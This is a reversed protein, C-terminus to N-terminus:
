RTPPKRREPFRRGVPSLACDIQNMDPSCALLWNNSVGINGQNKIAVYKAVKLGKVVPGTQTGPAINLYSMMYYWGSQAAHPAMFLLRGGSLGNYIQNVCIATHVPVGNISYPIGSVYM